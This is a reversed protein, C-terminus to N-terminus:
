HAVDFDARARQVLPTARAHRGPHIADHFVPSVGPERPGLRTRRAPHDNGGRRAAGAHRVVEVPGRAYGGHLILHSVREPHRVAFEVAISAGQSIGLLPFCDVGIADVVTELDKVWAEFSLDEVNWDSLGCGREDYRVLTHASSL